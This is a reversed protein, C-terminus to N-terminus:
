ASNASPTTANAAQSSPPGNYRMVLCTVDDSQPAGGVFRHVADTVTTLMVEISQRHADSLADIIRQVSFERGNSDMAESIGDTYLFLTDGPALVVSRETYALDPMVGVAMGGTRPLETVEGDKLVRFPPNHGGNAFRLEGTNLDLIGYFITVFLEMPNQACLVDNVQALCEGPSPKERASAQLVTRSIAMFFAAPVGKGSVDAIVLGLRDPGLPFFDYFDGGMERAPTMAAQGTYSPHSPMIQPLIAAQLSRAIELEEEMRRKADELLSNKEELDRTRARVQSELHEERAQVDRAMKQFVRALHGLEDPAKALGDLSEPQFARRDVEDAAHTLAVVPRTIRRAVTGAVLAGVLFVALTSLGGFTLTDALLADLEERPLQIVAAGTAIGATDLIPAAVFLGDEVLASRSALSRIARDALDRELRANATADTIDDGAAGSPKDNVIRVSTIGDQAVLAKLMADTGIRDLIHATFSAKHGVLVVKNDRAHVGVYRMGKAGSNGGSSLSFKRGSALSDLIRTPIEAPLKEGRILAQYDGLSRALPRHDRDVLWIDDIVSRAAIEALHVSLPTAGADADDSMEALHSLIVGQAEMEDRVLADIEAATLESRRASEAILGAVTRAQDEAQRILASRALYGTTAAIAATTLAICATVTLVFRGTLTM